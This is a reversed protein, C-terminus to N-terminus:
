VNIISNLYEKLQEEEGAVFNITFCKNEFSYSIDSAYKKNLYDTIQEMVNVRRERLTSKNLHEFVEKADEIKFNM